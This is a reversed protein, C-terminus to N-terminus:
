NKLIKFNKWWEKNKKESDEDMKILSYARLMSNKNDQQSKDDIYKKSQELSPPTANKAERYQIFNDVSDFKPINEFDEMTVPVVTETHAKKLDEYPLKSFIASSYYDPKDQTLSYGSMPEMDQIGKHVIISKCQKKTKEFETGFDGLSVQKQVIEPDNKYWEDYGHEDDKNNVKDFMENFWSNFEKESKGNLSHLLVADNEDKPAYYDDPVKENRKQRFYYVNSLSKYAKLFFMFYEMGLGSKDPHTKLAHKKAIKLEQEGFNYDLHFLNLLEDLNYNNINLDLDEM